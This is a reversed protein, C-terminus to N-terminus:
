AREPGRADGGGGACADLRLIRRARPSAEIVEADTVARSEPLVRETRRPADVAQEFPSSAQKMAQTGASLPVSM